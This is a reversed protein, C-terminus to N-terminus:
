ARLGRHHEHLAPPAVVIDPVNRLSDSIDRLETRQLEQKREQSIRKLQERRQQERIAIFDRLSSEDVYWIGQSRTGRVFGARCLRTVYDSALGVNRAVVRSPAYVVGAIVIENRTM